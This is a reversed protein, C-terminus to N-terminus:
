IRISNTIACFGLLSIFPEVLIKEHGERDEASIIKRLDLGHSGSRKDGSTTACDGTHHGNM